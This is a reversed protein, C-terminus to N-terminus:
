PSAPRRGASRSPTRAAPPPARPPPAAPRGAAASSCRRPATSAARGPPGPPSTPAPRQRRCPPPRTGDPRSRGALRPAATRLGAVLVARQVLVLHRREHLVAHLHRRLRHQRRVAARHPQRQVRHVVRRLAARDAHDVRDEGAAPSTVRSGATIRALGAAVTAAPRARKRSLVPSGRGTPRVRRVAASTSGRWRKALRVGGGGRVTAARGRPGSGCCRRSIGRGCLSM